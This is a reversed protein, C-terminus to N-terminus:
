ATGVFARTLVVEDNIVRKVIKPADFVEDLTHTIGYRFQCCHGM